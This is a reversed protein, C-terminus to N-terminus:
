GTQGQGMAVIREFTAMQESPIAELPHGEALALKRQLVAFESSVFSGVAGQLPQDLADELPVFVVGAETLRGFWDAAVDAFFPVNHGLAIGIAQEGFRAQLAAHDHRMLAVSFDLFSERVFDQAQRDGAELTNRYARNWTWEYAWTTVDVPTLGRRALHANVAALKQPTEGWHCLPHRFLRRPARALWPALLAEARDIQAIFADSSVDVLQVHAHTHNALHHGAAVWEELILAFDPHEELPWSNSFAYVGEIGHVALAQTIAQVIGAATYGEPPYSMPWLPLDDMTFAIKM